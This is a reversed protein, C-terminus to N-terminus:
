PNALWLSVPSSTCYRNMASLAVAEPKGLAALDFGQGGVWGPLISTLWAGKTRVQLVWLWPPDEGGPLWSFQVKELEFAVKLNPKAPPVTDLWPSEPILAPGIYSETQLRESVRDNNRTLSSFNWHVYGPSSTQRTLEVQRLIEDAKYSSGVKTTAGGPWIHRGMQNQQHWWELLVPYSQEPQDISWYLQPSLYDLWGKNLWTRSDAYLDQYADLGKIQRPSGPRWIGFPSVGFRVWKKAAKIERYLREVLKNVNERRWDSRELKGGAKQYKKYSAEDPFEIFAGSSDREKYPYFYDDLHVGDIDYRRVVDLIVRSVHDMTAKESPDLWLYKGYTRVLEPRTKQVHGADIGAKKAAIGARYPNFWAHLELGRAHAEQVAFALPDYFPAPAVGMKGSLYESWPEIESAYLADCAPRIQLILANLKMQAARDMIAKLEAQQQAAPLGPKSPWDINGVTAIWAGRFERAVKPPLLDLPIGKGGQAVAQAFGSIWVLGMLWVAGAMM